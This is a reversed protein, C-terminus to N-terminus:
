VRRWYIVADEGEVADPIRGIERWGLSAYLKRAPNSAFVFNFMIADFGLGPARRISDEVLMSGIGRGRADQSVAYGANAIHSGRGAFNAKLFYAGLLRGDSRAVVPTVGPALWTSEFVERTLPAAHPFGERAEVIAEFLEFLQDHEDLRPPGLEVDDPAEPRRPVATM